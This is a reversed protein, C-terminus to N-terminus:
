LPRVRRINLAAAVLIFVAVLAFATEGQGRSIAHGIIPIVIIPPLVALLTMLAVPEEPAPPYLNQAETLATAYPVGFGIGILVVGFLVAAIVPEFAILALGLGALALAGTLLSHRVGKAQLEAGFFRVAASLGFLLFSAAGALTKTVDGGRVVYEILWASLIMPVGYICVFMLALRYVGSSRVAKKLFGGTREQGSPKVEAGPPIMFYAIVGLLATILFGVEWAVDLDDLVSGSLLALAIGMQISAGYLGLLTVGGVQRAWVVALTNVIAFGIGPLIRGVALGAFFPTVAFLLNGTITLLCAVKLGNVLGIKEGLQAAFLLGVVSSGLFLTGSLIGVMALSIDFDAAVQSVVPGVNGGNWAAALGVLVVSAWVRLSKEGDMNANRVKGVEVISQGM